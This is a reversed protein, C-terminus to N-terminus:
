NARPRGRRKVVPKEEEVEEKKEESVITGGEFPAEEIAKETSSKPARSIELALAQYKSALQSNLEAIEILLIAEKDRSVVERVVSTPITSAVVSPVVVPQSAKEENEVPTSTVKTTRARRTKPKPEPAADLPETVEELPEPVEVKKKEIEDLGAAIDLVAVDFESANAIIESYDVEPDSFVILFSEMDSESPKIANLVEPEPYDVVQVVVDPDDLLSDKGSFEGSDVIKQTTFITLPYQTHDESWDLVTAIDLKTTEETLPFFLEAEDAAKVFDSLLELTNAENSRGTGVFGLLYYSL